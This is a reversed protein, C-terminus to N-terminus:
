VPTTPLAISIPTSLNALYVMFQILNPKGALSCSSVEVVSPLIMMLQKKDVFKNENNDKQGELTLLAEMSVKDIIYESHSM